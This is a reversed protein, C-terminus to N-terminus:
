RAPCRLFVSWKHEQLEKLGYEKNMLGPEFKRQKLDAGDKQQKTFWLKFTTQRDTSHMIGVFLHFRGM